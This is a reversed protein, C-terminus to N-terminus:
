RAELAITSLWGDSVRIVSAKEAGDNVVYITVPVNITVVPGPERVVLVAELDLKLTVTPEMVQGM